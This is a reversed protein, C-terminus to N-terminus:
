EIEWVYEYDFMILHPYGEDVFAVACVGGEGEGDEDIVCELQFELGLSNFWDVLKLTLKHSYLDTGISYDEMLSYIQNEIKSPHFNGKM